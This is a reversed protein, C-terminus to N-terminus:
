EKIEEIYFLDEISVGLARSVAVLTVIDYRTQTDFRSITPEKVGVAEAFEKQNKFKSKDLLEKLRPKVIYKPM